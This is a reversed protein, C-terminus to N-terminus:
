VEYLHQGESDSPLDSHIAPYLVARAFRRNKSCPCTGGCSGLVSEQGGRVRHRHNAHRKTIIPTPKYFLIHHMVLRGFPVKAGFANKQVHCSANQRKSCRTTPSWRRCGHVPIWAHRRRGTTCRLLSFRSRLSCSAATPM